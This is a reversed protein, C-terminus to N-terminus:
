KLRLIWYSFGLRNDKYNQITTVMGFDGNALRKMPFYEGGTWLQTSEGFRSQIEVLKQPELRSVKLKGQNLQLVAAQHRLADDFGSIWTCSLYGDKATLYPYFITDSSSAVSYTEWDQGNNQSRGLKLAQGESWLYYLHGAEDWALPEVWRPTGKDMNPSWDRQGPLEVTKWTKGLDLSVKLLDLGENFTVGSASLPSIRVALQGEPGVAFHSSGGLNHIDPRKQWNKGQDNSYTYHVGKGDNWIVHASGDSAVEVWPRDDYDNKSIYTWNWSKGEDSSVGLSIHEGKMSNWDFNKTDEPIRTYRM